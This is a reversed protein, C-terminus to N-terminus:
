SLIRIFYDGVEESESFYSNKNQIFVSCAEKNKEDEGQSRSYLAAYVPNSKEEMYAKKMMDRGKNKWGEYDGGYDNFYYPMLYIMYGFIANFSAEDIFHEFGFNTIYMLKEMLSKEDIDDIELREYFVLVFWIETGVCLCKNLDLKDKKWQSEILEIVDNWKNQSELIKVKKDFEIILKIRRTNQGHM